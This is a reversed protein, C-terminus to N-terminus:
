MSLPRTVRTVASNPVKPRSSSASGVILRASCAASSPLLSVGCSAARTTAGTRSWARSRAPSDSGETPEVTIPKTTGYAM